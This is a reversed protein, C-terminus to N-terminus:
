PISLFYGISPHYTIVKFGFKDSFSKNLRSVQPSLTHLMPKKRPDGSFRLLASPSLPSPYREIMTHLIASQADTLRIYEGMYYFGGNSVKHMLHSVSLSGHLRLRRAELFSFVAKMASSPSYPARITLDAPDVITDRDYDHSVLMVTPISPFRRRISRCFFRFRGTPTPRPLIILDCLGSRAYYGAMRYSGGITPLGLRYLSLRTKLVIDSDDDAVYIM